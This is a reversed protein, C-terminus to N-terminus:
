AEPTPEVAQTPPESDATSEALLRGLNTKAAEALAVETPVIPQTEPVKTAAGNSALWGRVTEASVKAELLEEIMDDGSRATKLGLDELKQRLFRAGYTKRVADLQEATALSADVPAAPAGDAETVGEAPEAAAAATVVGGAPATARSALMDSEADAAVRMALRTSLKEEAAAMAASIRDAMRAEREVVEKAVPTAYNWENTGISGVKPDPTAVRWQSRETCPHFRVGTEAEEVKYNLSFNRASRYSVLESMGSYFRCGGLDGSYGVLNDDTLVLRIPFYLEVYAM